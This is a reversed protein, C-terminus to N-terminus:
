DGTQGEALIGPMAFMTRTASTGAAEGIRGAFAPIGRALKTAATKAGTDQLSGSRAITIVHDLAEPNTMIENLVQAKALELQRTGVQGGIVLAADYESTRGTAIARVLSWISRVSIGVKGTMSGGETSYRVSSFPSVETAELRRSLEALSKLKAIQSEAVDAGYAKTLAQRYAYMYNRNSLRTDLSAALGGQASESASTSLDKGFWNVMGEAGTKDLTTLVLDASRPDSTASAMIQDTTKVGLKDTVLSTFTDNALAARDAKITAMRSASAKSASGFSGLEASVDIGGEQLADLSRGYKLMFADHRAPDIEGRNGVVEKNYRDLVAEHMLRKAESNRGYLSLYQKAARPSNPKFYQDFLAEDAIREVGTSDKLTQKINTGRLFRPSYTDRYYSVFKGYETAVDGGAATIAKDIEDKIGSLQRRMARDQTTPGAANRIDENVAERMSRLEKFGMPGISTGEAGGQGRLEEIRSMIKPKREPAYKFVPEKAASEVADVIGNVDFSKGQASQEAADLLRTVELDATAKEATRIDRLRRGSQELPARPLSAAQDARRAAVGEAEADLNALGARTQAVREAAMTSVDRGPGSQMLQDVIRARNAQDTAVKADLSQPNTTAASKSQQVISPVQSAQGVDMVVGPATGALRQSEAINPLASPNAALEGAIQNEVSKRIIPDLFAKSRNAFATRAEPSVLAKALQVTPAIKIYEPVFAGATGGTMAGIIDPWLEGPAVRKGVEHGISQGIGTGVGTTIVEPITMGAPRGPLPVKKFAAMGAVANIVDSALESKPGPPKKGEYGFAAAFDGSGGYRTQNLANAVKSVGTGQGSTEPNIQLAEPPTTPFDTGLMANSASGLMWPTAMAIKGLDRINYLTDMPMGAIGAPVLKARDWLFGAVSQNPDYEATASSGKLKEDVQSLLDDLTPETAM